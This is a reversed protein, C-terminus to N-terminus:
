LQASLLIALRVQSAVHNICWITSIYVITTTDDFRASGPSWLETMAYILLLFSVSVYLCISPLQFSKYLLGRNNSPAHLLITLPQYPRQPAVGSQKDLCLHLPLIRGCTFSLTKIFSKSPSATFDRLTFSVLFYRLAFLALFFNITSGIFNSLSGVNM